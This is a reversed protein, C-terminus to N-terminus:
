TNQIGMGQPLIIFCRHFDISHMLIAGKRMYLIDVHLRLLSLHIKKLDDISVSEQLTHSASAEFM